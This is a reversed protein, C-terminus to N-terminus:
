CTMTFRWQHASLFMWEGLNKWSHWQKRDTEQHIPVALIISHLSSARELPQCRCALNRHSIVDFPSIYSVVAM